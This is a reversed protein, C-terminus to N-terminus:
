KKIIKKSVTGSATTITATYIGSPLFSIDIQSGHSQAVIRGAADTITIKLVDTLNTSIMGNTPNPYLLPSPESELVESIGDKPLITIIHDATTSGDDNTATVSIRYRGEHNWTATTTQREPSSSETGEIDWLFRDANECQASITVVEGVTASSPAAISVVPPDPPPTEYQKISVDDICIFNQNQSRHRFAIRITQGAYSSLDIAREFYGGAVSEGFLSDYAALYGVENTTVLVEYTEIYSVHGFVQWHLMTTLENSPITIAPSVAWNDEKTPSYGGFICHLGGHPNIDSITWNRGDGDNDIFHWNNEDTEFGDLWITEQASLSLSLALFALTLLLSLRKLARYKKSM